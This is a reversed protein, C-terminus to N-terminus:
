TLPTLTAAGDSDGFDHFGSYRDAGHAQGYQDQVKAAGLSLRYLADPVSGGLMGGGSFTVLWKSSDGVVASGYPTIVFGTGRALLSLADPSLTVPVDFSLVVSKVM